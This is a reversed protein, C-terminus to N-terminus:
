NKGIQKPKVEWKQKGEKRGAQGVGTKNRGTDQKARIGRHVHM